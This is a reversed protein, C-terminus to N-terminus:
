PYCAVAYKLWSCCYCNPVVLPMYPLVFSHVPEAFQQATSYCVVLDTAAVCRQYHNMSASQELWCMGAAAILLTGKVAVGLQQQQQQWSHM